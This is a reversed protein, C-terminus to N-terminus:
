ASALGLEMLEWVVPSIKAASLGPGHFRTSYITNRILAVCLDRILAVLTPAPGGPLGGRSRLARGVTGGPDSDKPWGKPRTPGAVSGTM